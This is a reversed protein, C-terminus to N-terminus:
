RRSLVMFVLGLLISVVISTGLPLYISFNGREIHFDLPLRGPRFPLRDGFTLLVGVILVFGGLIILTRGVQEM